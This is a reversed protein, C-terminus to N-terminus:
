HEKVTYKGMRTSGQMYKIMLFPIDEKVTVNAM